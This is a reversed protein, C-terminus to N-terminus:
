TNSELYDEWPVLTTLYTSSNTFPTVYDYEADYHPTQLISIHNSTPLIKTEHAMKKSIMTEADALASYINQYYQYKPQDGMEIIAAPIGNGLFRYIQSAKFANWNTHGLLVSLMDFCHGLKIQDSLPKLTQLTTSCLSKFTTYARYGYKLDEAQALTLKDGYNGLQGFLTHREVLQDVEQYTNLKNLRKIFKEYDESKETDKTEFKLPRIYACYEGNHYLKYHSPPNDEILKYTDADKENLLSELNDISNLTAVWDFNSNLAHEEQFEVAYNPTSEYPDKSLRNLLLREQISLSHELSDLAKKGTIGISLSDIYKLFHLTNLNKLTHLELM